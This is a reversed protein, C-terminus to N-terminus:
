GDSRARPMVVAKGTGRRFVEVCKLFWVMAVRFVDLDRLLVRDVLERLASSGPPSLTM